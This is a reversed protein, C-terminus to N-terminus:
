MFNIKLFHKNWMQLMRVSILLIHQLVILLDVLSTKLMDKSAFKSESESIWFLFRFKLFWNFYSFIFSIQSFYALFNGMM